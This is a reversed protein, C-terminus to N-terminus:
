QEVEEIIEALVGAFERLQGRPVVLGANTPHFADPEADEAPSKRFLRLDLGDLSPLWTLRLEGDDGRLLIRTSPPIKVAQRQAPDQPLNTM